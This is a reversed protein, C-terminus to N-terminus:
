MQRRKSMIEEYFAAQVLGMFLPYLVAVAIIIIALVLGFLVGIFPIMALLGLIFGVIFLGVFVVLGALFDALFMSGRFGKTREQSVKIAETAPVNPEQFLIYPTLRYTYAKIIAFIPGVIPILSWIFIWLIMWAMGGIVRMATAGDKLCVFLDAARPIEGRYGRLFIITMSTSIALNIALSIGLVMGFLFSVVGTLISSLISIGWLQFPKKLIVALAKRYISLIM